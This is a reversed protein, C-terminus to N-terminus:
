VLAFLAVIAAILAAGAAVTAFSRPWSWGHVVRVGMLLLALTWAMFVIQFALFITDGAGQDAGGARFTDGGYIALRLPLLVVASLALPASAFAVLHRERRFSGLSGLLRAGFFLAFGALFYDVAGLLGGAFFIWIALVIADYGEQDLVNATVPDTLLLAIGALWVLLLIPEGRANIDDPDEERLAYFVSRPALLVAPVRLWWAREPSLDPSVQVPDTVVRM